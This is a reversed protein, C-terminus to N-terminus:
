CKAWLVGTVSNSEKRITWFCIIYISVAYVSIGDKKNWANKKEKEFGPVVMVCLAGLSCLSM